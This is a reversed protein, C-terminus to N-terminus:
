GAPPRELLTLLRAAAHRWTFHALVRSRAAEGLAAAEVPNGLLEEIAEALRGADNRAVVLGTTRHTLPGDDALDYSAVVPLGGAMGEYTAM